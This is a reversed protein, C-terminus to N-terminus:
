TGPSLSTLEQIPQVDEVTAKEQAPAQKKDAKDMIKDGAVIAAFASVCVVTLTTLGVFAHSTTAAGFTFITFIAMILMLNKKM